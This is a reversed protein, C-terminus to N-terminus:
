PTPTAALTEVQGKSIQTLANNFYSAYIQSQEKWEDDRVLMSVAGCVYAYELADPLLINGNADFTTSQTSRSYGCVEVKVNTRTHEIRNGTINYWYVPCKFQTNANIARRRVQDLPMQSCPFASTSDVVAGWVGIIPVSGSSTAPLIAANALDSTVLSMYTRWPHDATDAIAWALREEANLVADKIATFSFISSQVQTTTLPSVVYNTELTSPIPGVIANARIATERLVVSYPVSM